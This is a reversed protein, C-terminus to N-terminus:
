GSEVNGAMTEPPEGQERILGPSTVDPIGGSPLEGLVLFANEPAARSARSM